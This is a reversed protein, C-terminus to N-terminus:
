LETQLQNEREELAETQEKLLTITSGQNSILTQLETIREPSLNINATDSEENHKQANEM